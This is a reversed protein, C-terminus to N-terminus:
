SVGRTLGKTKRHRRSHKQTSRHIFKQQTDEHIEATIQTEINKHIQDLIKTCKKLNKLMKRKKM